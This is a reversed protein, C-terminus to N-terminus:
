GDPIPSTIAWVSRKYANYVLCYTVMQRCANSDLQEIGNIGQATFYVQFASDHPAFLGTDPQEWRTRIDQKILLQWYAKSIEGPPWNNIFPRNWPTPAGMTNMLHKKRCGALLLVLTVALLMKHLLKHM